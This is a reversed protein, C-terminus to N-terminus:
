FDHSCHPCVNIESSDRGVVDAAGLSRRVELDALVLEAATAFAHGCEVCLRYCDPPIPEYGHIACVANADTARLEDTAEALTLRRTLEDRAGPDGVSWTTTRWVRRVVDRAVAPEGTRRDVYEVDGRVRDWHVFTGRKQAPPYENWNVDYRSWLLEQLQNSTKGHCDAHSAYARAAAHISNRTADRQRWDLYDLVTEVDPVTFARADFTALRGPRLENFRATLLSAGVSVVKQLNGAFWAQTTPGERDSLVLSVEDSQVYALRAGQVQECLFTATAVLDDHFREDFPRALDRTYVHFARGDLRLVTFVRRPLYYRTRNEFDTKLRDGLGDHTTM